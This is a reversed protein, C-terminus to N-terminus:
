LCTGIVMLQRGAINNKNTDKDVLDPFAHHWAVYNVCDEWVYNDAKIFINLKAGAPIILDPCFIFSMEKIAFTETFLDDPEYSNDSEVSLKGSEDEICMRLRNFTPNGQFVLRTRICSLKVCKDEPFCLVGRTDPDEMDEMQDIYVCWTAM